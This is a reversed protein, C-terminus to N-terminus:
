GEEAIRKRARSRKPPAPEEAQPELAARKLVLCAAKIKARTDAELGATSDQGPTFKHQELIQRAQDVTM